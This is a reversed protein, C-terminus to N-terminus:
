RPLFMIDLYISLVVEDEINLARSFCISTNTLIEDAKPFLANKILEFLRNELKSIYDNALTEKSIRYLNLSIFKCRKQLYWYRENM